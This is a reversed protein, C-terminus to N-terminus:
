RTPTKDLTELIARIAVIQELMLNRLNDRQAPVPRFRRYGSRYNAVSTAGVGLIMGLDRDTWGSVDAIQQMLTPTEIDGPEVYEDEPIGLLDWAEREEPTM